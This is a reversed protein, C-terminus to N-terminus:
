KWITKPRMKDGPRSRVLAVLAKLVAAFESQRPRGDRLDERDIDAVGNILKARQHDELALKFGAVKAFANLFEDLDEIGVDLAMATYVADASDGEAPGPSPEEDFFSIGASGEKPASDRPREDDRASIIMGAAVEIKPVPSVQV